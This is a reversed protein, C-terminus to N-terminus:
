QLLSRLEFLPSTDRFILLGTILTSNLLLRCYCHLPWCTGPNILKTKAYLHSPLQFSSHGVPLWLLLSFTRSVVALGVCSNRWSANILQLDFPAACPIHPIQQLACQAESVGFSTSNTPSDLFLWVKVDKFNDYLFFCSMIFCMQWTDSQKSVVCMLFPTLSHPLSCLCASTRLSFLRLLKMRAASHPIIM